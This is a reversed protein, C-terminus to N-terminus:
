AYQKKVSGDKNFVADIIKGANGSVIMSILQALRPDKEVASKLETIKPVSAKKVGSGNGTTLDKKVAPNRQSQAKRPAPNVPQIWGHTEKCQDRLISLEYDVRNELSKKEKDSLTLVAIHHKAAARYAGQWAKYAKWDNSTVAFSALLKHMVELNKQSTLRSVTGSVFTDITNLGAVTTSFKQLHAPCSFTDDFKVISAAQKHAQSQTMTSQAM